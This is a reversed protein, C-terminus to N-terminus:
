TYDVCRKPPIEEKLLFVRLLRTNTVYRQDYRKMKVRKNLLTLPISMHIISRAVMVCINPNEVVPISPIYERLVAVLDM